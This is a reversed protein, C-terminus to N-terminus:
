VIDAFYNETARFYNLGIIFIVISSALSIGLTDWGIVGGEFVTRVSEIVGTMPNLALLYKFSPRVINLPYIVPTLFILMQIFFPLAYRVDRFKVNFASLFLGSGSAALSAIIIGLPIYILAQYNPIKNFYLAVLILMVFAIVFDVFCTIIKSLPLIVRPFYIKKVINENEILSNSANSLIGSFYTWFVLGILVFLSYPLGGSPIKALNGFFFTFIFMSFLPQFIAWGAGILTQKYRVKLDRWAFIVFLERYDWLEKLYILQWRNRARILTIKKM